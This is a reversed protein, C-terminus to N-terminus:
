NSRYFFRVESLGYQTMMGWGRIISIKVYRAVAGNFEVTTNATYDPKGTAQAFEPVQMLQIWDKGNISTKITVDKVGLGVFSEILQNSNWVKMEHLRYAQDFEYQIWVPPNGMGSLWMDTAATSHQDLDNLGVGDLTKGPGMRSSHSSSAKATVNDICKIAGGGADEILITPALVVRLGVFSGTATPAYFHRSAIRCSSAFGYWAGGRRVRRAGMSAGVPDEQSESEYEGKWDLCWEYVNGSMDYLGVRNAQKRGVPHTKMGSNEKHWAVEDISNSGAYATSARAAGARAAYEWEAETPLRYEYGDPLHGAQREQDTLKRCFSVAENWNVTEVPNNEGPFSSPNSGIISVYQQQTVEYKGMWYGQTIQVTHVPKEDSAGDHSGMQFSGPVIYVLEMGLVPVQWNIGLTPGSVGADQPPTTKASPRADKGVEPSKGYVAAGPRALKEQVAEATMSFAVMLVIIGFLMHRRRMQGPIKLVDSKKM